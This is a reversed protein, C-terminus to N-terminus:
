IIILELDFNRKLEKVDVGEIELSCLDIYTQIHGEIVDFTWHTPVMFISVDEQENLMLKIFPNEKLRGIDDSNLNIYSNYIKFNTTVKNYVVRIVEIKNDNLSVTAIM